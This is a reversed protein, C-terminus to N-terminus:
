PQQEYIVHLLVTGVAALSEPSCKDPTDESTHWFRNTQDPYDFDILDITKIGADNLPLHDDTVFNQTSNVFQGIGLARATSWVQEVIDPAYRLSYREKPIELQKDGVMDLLIGFAPHFGQPLHDAFYRAGLLYNKTDGERGYDEGDVLLIDIGVAAPSSRYARALEILIAVGSAGDNAGLIPLERKAPDHDQDARPRSDWHAILLVRTTAQPNLSAIINTLHLQEGSYGEISFPQTNVADAYQSLEQRLYNLCQEHAPANPVRPGFDTQRKLYSFAQTADFVPTKINARQASKADPLVVPKQHEQQCSMLPLIVLILSSFHLKM